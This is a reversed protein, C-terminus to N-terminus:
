TLSIRSRANVQGGSRRASTTHDLELDCKLRGRAVLEIADECLDGCVIRTGRYLHDRADPLFDHSEGGWLKRMHPTWAENVRSSRSRGYIM